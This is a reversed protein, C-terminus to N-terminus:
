LNEVLSGVGTLVPDVCPLGSKGGLAQLFPLREAAEMTSTNISIGICRVAPSTLSAAEVYKEICDYLIPILYGPHEDIESRGAEHCM